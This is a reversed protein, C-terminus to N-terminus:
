GVPEAVVAALKAAVDHVMMQRDTGARVDFAELVLVVESAPRVTDVNRTVPVNTVVTAIVQAPEAVLATCHPEPPGRQELLFREAGIELCACGFSSRPVDAEATEALHQRVMLIADREIASASVLPTQGQENEIGLELVVFALHAPVHRVIRSLHELGGAELI